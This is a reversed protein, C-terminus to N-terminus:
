KEKSKRYEIYEEYTMSTNPYKRLLQKYGTTILIKKGLNRNIPRKINQIHKGIDIEEAKVTDLTENELLNRKTKKQGAARRHWFKLMAERKKPYKIERM